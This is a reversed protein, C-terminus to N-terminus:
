KFFALSQWHTHTFNKEGQPNYIETEGFATYRYIEMPNGGQDNLCVINGRIDHSPILIKDHLEIAVSAGIEAGHGQGLIRLEQIHGKDDISGIEDQGVYLYRTTKNGEIKAIRRHSFDYLYRSEQNSKVAILRDHADYHYTIKQEATQKAILNGNTNYSFTSEGNQILQHLANSTYTSRDKSIRNHLSDCSYTHQTHSKESILHDQDDYLYECDITGIPDSILTHKLRSGQDYQIHDQQYSLNQLSTPRKLLDYTYTLEKGNITTEKLNLGALDFANYTHTYILTQNKIRQIKQLHLASYQYLVQSTDPLILKKVRDLFLDMDLLSEM